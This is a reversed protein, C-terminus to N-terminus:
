FAVSLTGSITRPAGIQAFPPSGPNGTFVGDGLVNGQNLGSTYNGVYLDDFLNYVNVQFFTKDNLGIFELNVRADLNVLWYANTKAPYLITPAAATGGYIPLNTDYIFRGGTRKATIGLEVPGLTGRATGGFSYKPAGGERKGATAVFLPDGIAACGLAPNVATCEGSQINDKIESKMWSGFANLVLNDLPRWTVSGDIGYKDVRGLNRYVNRETVPDYASALRDNYKTFWGSIQAQVKSTRYRFGLDFNDSTEPSPRASPTNPAFFFANYLADTGPVQLGKSYNAFISMQSNPKFLLGINPLIDDYKLVRQQPGQVTPNLGAYTANRPDDKGFCDVFGSDSTTFCYNNLDRKFFPARVGLTTILSGDFFEGRYEGSVQNLMAYSLRDRKQLVAGTVDVDPDNVAFVDFPEGNFQIPMVQGTQRHRARDFTYGLRVTHGEAVDWRLNAIVGYRHTQTQSPALVAVEDLLDGDGNLDFGYYPRGGVYGAVNSVAAGPAIDVLRERANVTGGGNAKVYQYSPDVTLTIGQALTFKSAGRVNGTNSPNYRRDFETGCSSAADAAGPTVTATTTCPFNIDYEREDNDLPFRNGSGSGVVRNPDLRLPLSGFFNNRNENYHGAVSVFDGDAGIPQYIRGNFQKKRIRGYNNFPNDNSTSSASLFARTGFPTFEGTHVLGFIRFFKFEGASGSLNMGFEEAPLITRYNVTSGTAAATPSDVDTSGLNVNVQEILEPDLQQNSYIAYNGSDNLPVGDFTLSIRDASFGRITLQGGSSGYADNNTFNVGPVMNITDLITQGPNQRSIVEQGLVLKAKSTDPTQIGAVDRSTVGTVVIEEDFDVSGSSQAFAPTSLLAVPILACSAALTHRFKM